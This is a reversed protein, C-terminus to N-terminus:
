QEEAAGVAARLLQALHHAVTGGAELALRALPAFGAPQLYEDLGVVDGPEIEAVVEGDRGVAVQDDALVLVRAVDVVVQAPDRRVAAQIGEAPQVFLGFQGAGAERGVARGQEDVHVARAPRQRDGPGPLTEPGSNRGGRAVGAYRARGAAPPSSGACCWPTRAAAWPRTTAAAFASR